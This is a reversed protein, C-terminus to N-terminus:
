EVIMMAEAAQRCKIVQQRYTNKKRAINAIKILRYAEEAARQAKVYNGTVYYSESLTNWLQYSAPALLVGDQALRIARAGDRISRDKVTAYIWALNNIVSYDYPFEAQLRELIKIAIEYKELQILASAMGFRCRRNHPNAKRAKRLLQLALANSGQTLAQYGRDVMEKEKQGESQYPTAPVTAELSPIPMNTWDLLLHMYDLPRVSQDGEEESALLSAPGLPLLM